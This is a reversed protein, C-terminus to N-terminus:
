LWERMQKLTRGKASQVFRRTDTEEPMNVDPRGAFYAAWQEDTMNGNEGRGQVAHLRARGAKGIAILHLVSIAQRMKEEDGVIASLENFLKQNLQLTTM